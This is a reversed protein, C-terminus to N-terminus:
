RALFDSITTESSDRIARDDRPMLRTKDVHVFPNRTIEVRRMTSVQSVRAMSVSDAALRSSVRPLPPWALGEYEQRLFGPSMQTGTSTTPRSELTMATEPQQLPRPQLIRRPASGDSLSALTVTKDFVTEDTDRSGKSFWRKLMGKGTPSIERSSHGSSNSHRHTRSRKLFNLPKEAEVDQDIQAWDEKKWMPQREVDRPLTDRRVEVSQRTLIQWATRPSDFHISMISDGTRHRRLKAVPRSRDSTPSLKNMPNLPSDDYSRPYGFKSTLKTVPGFLV